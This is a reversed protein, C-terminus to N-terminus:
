RLHRRRHFWVGEGDPLYVQCYPIGHKWSIYDFSLQSRSSQTTVEKWWLENFRITSPSHRRLLVTVEALGNHEPYGEERYQEMQAEIAEQSPQAKRLRVCARAEDYICDRHRHRPAAIDYEALWHEMVALPDCVLEANGDAWFVLDVDPFLLHSLFKCKVAGMRSGLGPDYKRIQWPGIGEDICNSYCIYDIEPNVVRPPLLLDYGDLICTYVVASM